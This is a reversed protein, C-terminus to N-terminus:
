IKVKLSSFFCKSFGFGSAHAEDCKRCVAYLDQTPVRELRKVIYGFSVAKYETGARDKNIGNVLYKIHEGRETEKSKNETPKENSKYRQKLLDAVSIPQPRNSEM